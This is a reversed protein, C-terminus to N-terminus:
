QTHMLRVFSSSFCCIYLFTALPSAILSGQGGTRNRPVVQTAPRSRLANFGRANQILSARQANQALETRASPSCRTHRPPIVLASWYFSLGIRNSPLPYFNIRV